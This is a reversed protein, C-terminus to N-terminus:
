SAKGKVEDIRVIQRRRKWHLRPSTVNVVYYVKDQWGKRTHGHIIEVVKGQCFQTKVTDGTKILM